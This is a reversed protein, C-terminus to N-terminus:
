FLADSQYRERKLKEEEQRRLEIRRRARWSAVENKAKNDRFLNMASSEPDFGEGLKFGSMIEVDYADTPDLEGCEYAGCSDCHAPEYMTYGFDMHHPEAWTEGGCHPCEGKM